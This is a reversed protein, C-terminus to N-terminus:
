IKALTKHTDTDSLAALTAELYFLPKGDKLVKFDPHTVRNSVIPHIKVSFGSKSLLEHLYLEFFAALHQRDDKTQFHAWLKDQIESPFDEFWQELLKRIRKCESRASRNFFDFMSETYLAPGTYDRDIEAFLKKAENM